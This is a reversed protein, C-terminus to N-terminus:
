PRALRGAQELLRKQLIPVDEIPLEIGLDGRAVMVCDAARIIEEAADVAQPKEIKAVLPLRTHERVKTVDEATRVFSLAVLDVGISEGFRLMDLDEEPVAPLGRTSGPINLGQRSAVTGGIEVATEVEGDGERVNKVRLRIAGDALYIIDEPDVASALGSWSVSMREGNGVTNNGCLLILKEGPKLEAIDDELRGIRIKPGPLDQLIAVQRGAASAARRVLEANEAHMERNGHSFNLRAVDMGAEAMRTLTEIDQCAPGITAVIKTRRM